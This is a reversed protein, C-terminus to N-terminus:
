AIRTLTVSRRNSGGVYSIRFTMGNVKITSGEPLNAFIGSIPSTGQNNVVVLATGVAPKVTATVTLGGALTVRGTAHISGITPSSSTGGIQITLNGASTQTFGGDVTLVSAPSLTLNGASSFSGPTTFSQGGLLSFSGQNTALGALNTFTSNPGSLTVSAKTGITTLNPLYSFELTAPSKMTGTVSWSGASLTNGVDQAVTANIELTGSSVQVRGTNSFATWISAGASSTESFLGANVLTGSGTCENAASGEMDYVGKSANSLTSGNDLELPAGLQIIKGNNILTGGGDLVMVGTGSPITLTGDNTLTGGATNITGTLWQLMGAPFNVTAGGTGVSFAYVSVAGGGSGTVSGTFTYLGSNMLFSAGSAVTFTGGTFNCTGEPILTGSAVDITGSSDLIGGVWSTTGAGASMELTGANDLTGDSGTESGIIASGTQIDILGGAPNVLTANGAIVLGGTTGALNITGDNDLHGPGNLVAETGDGRVVVLTGKNTLDGQTVDIEGSWDFLGPPFDFTAGGSGIELSEDYPIEVTGSGSGTYSGTFTFHTSPALELVSGADATFTGGTSSGQVSNIYLTGSSAGLTGGNNNFTDAEVGGTGSITGANNNIVTGGSGYLFTDGSLQFSGANNLTTGTGSLELYAYTGTSVITGDNNVVGGGGIFLTQNSSLAVNLTGDNTLSSGPAITIFTSDLDPVQIQSDGTLTLSSQLTLDGTYDSAVQLSDVTAPADVTCPATSGSFIATDSSDPPEQLSWNTPDSWVGGSGTAIWFDSDLVIRDELRELRPGFRARRARSASSHPAGARRLSTAPLFLM